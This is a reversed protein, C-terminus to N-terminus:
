FRRCHHRRVTKMTTFKRRCNRCCLLENDPVWRPRKLILKWNEVMEEVGRHPNMMLSTPFGMGSSNSNNGNNNYVNNNNSSTPSIPSMVAAAVASNTSSITMREQLSSSSIMATTDRLIDPKTYDRFGTCFVYLENIANILEQSNMSKVRQKLVSPIMEFTLSLLEDKLHHLYALGITVMHDLGGQLLFLGFITSATDFSVNYIFLTTFWEVAYLAPAVQEYELHEHLEPMINRMHWDLRQLLVHLYEDRSDFIRRLGSAQMMRTFLLFAGESKTCADGHSIAEAMRLPDLTQLNDQFSNNSSSSMMLNFHMHSSAVGKITPRRPVGGSTSSSGVVGAGGTASGTNPKPISVPMTVPLPPLGAEQLQQAEAHAICLAAIFNMGQVYGV